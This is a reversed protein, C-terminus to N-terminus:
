QRSVPIIDFGEHRCFEASWPGFIKRGRTEIFERITKLSNGHSYRKIDSVGAGHRALDFAVTLCFHLDGMPILPTLLKNGSDETVERVNALVVQKPASPGVNISSADARIMEIHKCDPKPARAFKWVPCSCAYTGDHKLSVIWTGGNTAPVNWQQIWISQRKM